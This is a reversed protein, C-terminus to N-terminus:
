KGRESGASSPKPHNMIADDICQNIKFPSRKFKWHRVRRKVLRALPSKLLQYRGYHIFWAINLVSERLRPKGLAQESM